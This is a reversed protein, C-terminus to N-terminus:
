EKVSMLLNSFMYNFAKLAVLSTILTSLTFISEGSSTNLMSSSLNELLRVAPSQVLEALDARATM